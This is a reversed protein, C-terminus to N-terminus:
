PLPLPLSLFFFSLVSFTGRSALQKSESVLPPLRSPASLRWSSVAEVVLLDSLTSLFARAGQVVSLTLAFTCCSNEGWFPFVIVRFPCLSM